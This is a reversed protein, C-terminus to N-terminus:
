VDVFELSSILFSFSKIEFTMTRLFTKSFTKQKGTGIQLGEPGTQVQIRQHDPM